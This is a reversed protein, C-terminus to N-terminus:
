KTHVRAVWLSNLLRKEEKETMGWVVVTGYEFVFVDPVWEEEEWDDDESDEATSGASKGRKAGPRKSFGTQRKKKRELEREAAQSSSLDLNLLDGEPVATARLRPSSQKQNSSSSHQHTSSPPPLYPTHVCETDFMRPHCRYSDPRASLYALLAPLDYNSRLTMLPFLVIPCHVCAATCYATVRPLKAKETKTLRQADRRATGAPIQSLPTYFQAAETDISLYTGLSVQVVGREDDELEGDDDDDDENDEVAEAHTPLM